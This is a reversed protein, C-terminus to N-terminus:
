GFLYFSSKGLFPNGMSIYELTWFWAEDVDGSWISKEVSSLVEKVPYYNPTLTQSMVRNKSEWTWGEPPNPVGSWPEPSRKLESRERFLEVL